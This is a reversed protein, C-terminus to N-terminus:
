SGHTMAEAKEKIKGYDKPPVESLKNVGEDVILQRIEAKFGEGAKRALLTRLEELTVKPGETKPETEVAQTVAKADLAQIVTDLATALVRLEAAANQLTAIEQKM